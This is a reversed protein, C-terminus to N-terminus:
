FPAGGGVEWKEILPSKPPLSDWHIVTLLTDTISIDKPYLKNSPKILHM